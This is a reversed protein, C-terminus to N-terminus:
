VIGSEVYLGSMKRVEAYAYPPQATAAANAGSSKRRNNTGHHQAVCSNASRSSTHYGPCYSQRRPESQNALTLQYLQQQNQQSKKRKKKREGGAHVPHSNFCEIEKLNLSEQHKQKRQFQQQQSLYDQQRNSSKRRQHQQQHLSVQHYYRAQQQQQQQEVTVPVVQEYHQEQMLSRKRQQFDERPYQQHQPPPPASPAAPYGLEERLDEELDRQDVVGLAEALFVSLCQNALWGSRLWHSVVFPALLTPLYSFWAVTLYTLDFLNEDNLM